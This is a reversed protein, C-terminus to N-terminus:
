GLLKPQWFFHVWRESESMVTEITLSAGQAILSWRMDEASFAARWQIKALTEEPSTRSAIQLAMVDANVLIGLAESARLFSDIVTSKGSGNPGAFVNLFPKHLKEPM